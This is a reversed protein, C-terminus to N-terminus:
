SRLSEAEQIKIAYIILSDLVTNLIAWEQIGKRALQIKTTVTRKVVVVVVVVRCMNIYPTNFIIFINPSYFYILKLYKKM